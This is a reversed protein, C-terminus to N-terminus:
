SIPAYRFAVIGAGTAEAKFPKAKKPDVAPVEVTQSAVVTGSKDLFELKLTFSRAADTNNTITGGLTTKGDASTFETFSVKAPLSTMLTNYHLASDVNIKASDAYANSIRQMKPVSDIVATKAKASLGASNARKGLAKVLDDYQKQKATYGKQISAYAIALLQYNDPNSPDVAVLQRAVPIGQAYASDLLYLRALNYLADRHYPNVARAAEFLKIADKNQNTRAATVAATMLQNYNFASPNALQEAYTAKIAATDGSVQALRAQGARAADAYKTGPDAALAAYAAKAENLYTTKQEGTAEEAADAALNGLALELQRRVDAQSTDKAGAVALKYNAIADPIKNEKQAAQALVMYGYPANKTLLLSRKAAYVASDMKDANNYEIAKNVLDVWAKQQRYAATQSACEPLATEVVTFASDIGQYLDFPASPNDVFGVAGRTTMGNVIGPQSSLMVFARGLEFARGTPNKKVDGENLLKVAERLKAAADEPKGASQAIQLNLVARTLQAPSSEDIDCAKQAGASASLGAILLAPVLKRGMVPM